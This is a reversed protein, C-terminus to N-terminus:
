YIFAVSKEDLLSLLCIKIKWVGNIPGEGDRIAGKMMKTLM